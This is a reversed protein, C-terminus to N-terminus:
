RRLRFRSSIAPTNRSEPVLQRFPCKMASEPWVSNKYNKKTLCIDPFVYIVTYPTMRALSQPRWGFHCGEQGLGCLGEELEAAGSQTQVGAQGTVTIM